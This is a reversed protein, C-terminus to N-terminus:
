FNDPLNLITAVIKKANEVVSAEYAWEKLTHNEAGRVGCGCITPVGHRTTFAGDSAGSSYLAEPAKYGIQMCADKYYTFLMDSKEVKEMAPFCATEEVEITIREDSPKSCIERIKAMANDYMAQTSFRLSGTIECYDPVSNVASGGSIKGCNCYVGDPYDTMCELAEVIKGAERIASAGKLPANGAHSSVGHIKVKFINAGKRSLVVDGKAPASECNFAAAAGPVNDNYLKLSEGNSLSHAVEEDGTLLIKIQRKKYGAFQLAKTVLLAVAIGGKCDYVGAGNVIGLKQEWLKDGFSGKPHVTDMHAMLIIPKLEGKPTWAAVSAGATPFSYKQTSLGMALLYTDMHSALMNVGEVNASQSEILVIEKWLHVMSEYQSDMFEFIRQMDM